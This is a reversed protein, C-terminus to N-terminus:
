LYGGPSVSFHAEYANQLSSSGFSDLDRASVAEGVSHESYDPSDVQRRKRREPPRGATKIDVPRLVRARSRVREPDIDLTECIVLFATFQSGERARERWQPHGPKEEFLWVYAEQALERLHLRSHNRYLVWDNIARRIIDFLLARCIGAEAAVEALDSPDWASSERPPQARQAKKANKTARSTVPPVVRLKPRPRARAPKRVSSPATAPARQQALLARARAIGGMAAALVDEFGTALESM